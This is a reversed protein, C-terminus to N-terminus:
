FTETIDTIKGNNYWWPVYGDTKVDSGILPIEEVYPDELKIDFPEYDFSEFGIDRSHKLMIDKISSVSIPVDVSATQFRGNYFFNLSIFDRAHSNKTLQKFFVNRANKGNYSFDSDRSLLFFYCNFNDKLMAKFENSLLIDNFFRQSKVSTMLDLYIVIFPCNVEPFKDKKTEVTRTTYDNCWQVSDMDFLNIKRLKINGPRGVKIGCYIDYSTDAILENSTNIYNYKKKDQTYIICNRNLGFCKSNPINSVGSSRIGLFMISDVNSGNLGNSDVKDTSNISPPFIVEKVAPSSDIVNSQIDNLKFFSNDLKTEDSLDTEYGYFGINKLKQCESFAYESIHQLNFPLQLDILNQCKKFCSEGISTLGEGFCVSVLNRCNFFSFSSLNQVKDNLVAGYLYTELGNGKNGNFTVASVNNSM